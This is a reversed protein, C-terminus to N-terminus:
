GDLDKIVLANGGLYRELMERIQAEIESETMNQESKQANGGFMGRDRGLLELARVRVNGGNDQSEAERWLARTIDKATRLMAQDHAQQILARQREVEARFAPKGCISSVKRKITVDSGTQNDFALRYADIGTRGMAIARAMLSQKHTLNSIVAPVTAGAEVMGPVPARPGINGLLEDSAANVMITVPDKKRRAM